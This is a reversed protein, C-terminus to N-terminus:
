DVWKSSAIEVGVRGNDVVRESWTSHRSSVFVVIVVVITSSTTILATTPTPTPSSGIGVTSRGCGGGISRGAM